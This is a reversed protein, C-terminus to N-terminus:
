RRSRANGRDALDGAPDDGVIDAQIGEVSDEFTQQITTRAADAAKNGPATYDKEDRHIRRGFIFALVGAILAGILVWTESM